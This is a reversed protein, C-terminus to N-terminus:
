AKAALWVYQYPELVFSQPNIQQAGILDTMIEPLDKEPLALPIPDGSINTVAYITQDPSFRKIAFIRNDMELIEFGAKPDFAPQNRRVQIMKLYPYFVRARFSSPDNLQTLVDPLVLKARNITRARGTQRVGEIWNRSGLLSHIYTAPM